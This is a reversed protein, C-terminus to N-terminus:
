VCDSMGRHLMRHLSSLSFCSLMKSCRPKVIITSVLHSVNIFLIAQDLSVNVLIFNIKIFLLHGVLDLERFAYMIM